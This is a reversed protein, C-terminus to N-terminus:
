FGVRTAPSDGPAPRRGSSEAPGRFLAGHGGQSPHAMLWAQNDVAAEGPQPTLHRYSGDADLVRTTTNNRLEAELIARRIYDRIAPDSVPFIVEVRRDLNRPMLDASGLYVEAQGGNEFHYIRSHELFRGVISRVHINDSVGPVGPRLCCIGRVILDVRVGAQSAQYLRRILREDVLANMKFVLRATRGARQHEIEREIMNEIRERMGGPAVILSRYYTQTSYGTLTNFLETADAGIQPDCTLLGLDTYIGATVANYNGTALHLYRRLGGEEKRVVLTIKSHTKLGMLGYVVHVGVAELAKAWGINSEEDFRAKLEVLVAVQKGNQQADLLASVVPANSGVRYLTQKIALVSPDAAASRIFDLVPMFSDYPHHLLIDQKRIAAFIDDPTKLDRLPPPVSPSYIHDRLAPHGLRALAWLSSMALPPRLPYVDGADVELHRMLLEVMAKPMAEDVVLQVVPGFQRLRLGQEITELLDPAEDEQIELDADRLVHFSYADVIEHGPFLTDLNSAIVDELWIFRRGDELPVLRPLTTPVKVRAFREEGKPNRITLALNLSLNSIHPFPRGPDVALPTLVPLIEAQYFARLRDCDADPLDQYRQIRIGAAELEPQVEDHFIRRQEDLLPLLMARIAEIQAAPAMGDPPGNVVGAGIQDKLGSVRIMFFEDLNSSFIALFKVRELLPHRRDKAEELVRRNFEIWSLERNFYLSPDHLDFGAAAVATSADASVVPSSSTPPTSVPLFPDTSATAVVPPAAVGSSVLEKKKTTTKKRPTMM